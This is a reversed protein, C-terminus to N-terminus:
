TMFDIQGRAEGWLEPKTGVECMEDVDKAALFSFPIPGEQIAVRGVSVEIGM